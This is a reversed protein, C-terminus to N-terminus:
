ESREDGVHDDHGAYKRANHELRRAVMRRLKRAGEKAEQHRGWYGM